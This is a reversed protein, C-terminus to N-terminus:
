NEFGAAGILKVFRVAISPREITKQRYREITTLRQSNVTGIPIVLRGGERLQEVLTNVVRPAAATVLIRDFPAEAPLGLSGDGTILTVNTIGLESLRSKASRTLAELREVSYVHRALKSLIATQYGTGTGIELVRHDPVIQLAETMCAVIYPQSITQGLETGLARDEYAEDVLTPPLFAERPLRRMVDLLRVDVVGRGAIQSEVMVRRRSELEFQTMMTGAGFACIRSNLGDAPHYYFRSPESLTNDPSRAFFLNPKM